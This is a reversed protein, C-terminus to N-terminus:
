EDEKNVGTNKYEIRDSQNELILQVNRENDEIKPSVFGDLIKFFIAFVLGWFTSTLAGYFNSSIDSMDSVLGLLSIITGLIGMLPFIGTLNIFLSYLKSTHNRMEAIDSKKLSSIQRDADIRSEGGDPVFIYLHMKNYLRKASKILFYYIVVTFVAVIFILGDFGWFNKFIVSFVKEM